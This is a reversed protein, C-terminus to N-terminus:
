TTREKGCVSEKKRNNKRQYEKDEEEAFEELRDQLEAKTMFYINPQSFFKSDKAFDRVSKMCDLNKLVKNFDRIDFLREGDPMTVIKNNAELIKFALFNKSETNYDVVKSYKIGM